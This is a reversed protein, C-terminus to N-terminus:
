TTSSRTSVLGFPYASSPASTDTTNLPYRYIRAAVGATSPEVKAPQNELLRAKWNIARSGTHGAVYVWQSDAVVASPIFNDEFNVVRPHSIGRPYIKLYGRGSVSGVAIIESNPGAAVDQV